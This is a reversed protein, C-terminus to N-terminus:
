TVCVYLSQSHKACPLSEICTQNGEKYSCLIKLTAKRLSSSLLLCIVKKKKEVLLALHAPKQAPCMQDPQDQGTHHCFLWKSIWMWCSVDVILPAPVKIQMWGSSVSRPGAARSPADKLQLACRLGDHDNFHDWPVKEGLLPTDNVARAM